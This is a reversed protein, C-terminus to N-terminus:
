IFLDSIFYEVQVTFAIIIIAVVVVAIIIFL